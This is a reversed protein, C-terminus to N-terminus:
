EIAILIILVILFPIAVAAFLGFASWRVPSDKSPVKPKNMEDEGDAPDTNVGVVALEVGRTSPKNSSTDNSGVLPKVLSPVLKGRDSCPPLPLSPFPM